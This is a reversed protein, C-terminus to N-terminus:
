YIYIYLRLSIIIVLILKDRQLGSVPESNIEYAKTIHIYTHTHTYETGRERGREIM